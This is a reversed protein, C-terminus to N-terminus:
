RAPESGRPASCVHMCKGCFDGWDVVHQYEEQVKARLPGRLRYRLRSWLFDWGTWRRSRRMAPVDLVGGSERSYGCLSSSCALKDLGAYECSVGDIEVSRPHVTDFAGTPCVDICRECRDCLEPGDYMPDASLPARTLVSVFRNRPGFRPTLLLNNYGIVGLGAAMAAHRHSFEGVPDLVNCDKMYTTPVIPFAAHGHGELWLAVDYAAQGLRKNPLQYGYYHYSWVSASWFESLGSPLGIGLVVVARAGPLLDTPRFGPPASALREASAVGVLHIGRTLTYQKAESTLERDAPSASRDDM